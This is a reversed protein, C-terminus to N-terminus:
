SSLEASACPCLPPLKFTSCFVRINHPNLWPPVKYPSKISANHLYFKMSRIPHYPPPVKVQLCLLSRIPTIHLHFKWRYACLPGLQPSILTSSEDALVCPVQHPSLFCLPVKMQLCVLGSPTHDSPLGHLVCPVQHPVIFISRWSRFLPGSPPSIFISSENALVRSRIPTIQLHVKMIHVFSRIPTM